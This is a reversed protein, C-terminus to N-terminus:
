TSSGRIEWGAVMGDGGCPHRWAGKFKTVVPGEHVIGEHKLMLDIIGVIPAISFVGDAGDGTAATRVRDIERVRDTLLPYPPYPPNLDQVGAFVSYAKAVTERTYTFGYVVVAGRGSGRPHSLRLADHFLSRDKLYPSVAKQLGFDNNKGNDGVLEVQKVEILWETLWETVAASEGHLIAIDCRRADGPAYPHGPVLHRGGIMDEPHATQWWACLGATVAPENMSPLGPLFPRRTRQSVRGGLDNRDLVLLGEAIREVIKGIDM